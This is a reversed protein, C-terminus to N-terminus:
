QGGKSAPPAGGMGAGSSYDGGGKSGKSDAPAALSAAKAVIAEKATMGTGGPLDRNTKIRDAAIGTTALYDRISAMRQEVLRDDEISTAYRVAGGYVSLLKAYRELRRAGTGNLEATHPVFHIDALSLDELMANDVMYVFSDGLPSTREAPGQPPANLRDSPENCGVGVWLISLVGFACLARM